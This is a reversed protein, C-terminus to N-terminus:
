RGTSHWTNTATAAGHSMTLRRGAAVPLFSQSDIPIPSAIIRPPSSPQNDVAPQDTGKGRDEGTPAEKLSWTGDYPPLSPIQEEDGSQCPDLENM